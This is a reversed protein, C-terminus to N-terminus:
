DEGCVENVRAIEPLLNVYAITQSLRYGKTMQSPDSLNNVIKFWASRNVRGYDLLAVATDFGMALVEARTHLSKRSNILTNRNREFVSWSKFVPQFEDYIMANSSSSKIFLREAPKCKFILVPEVGSYIIKRTIDHYEDSTIYDSANATLTIVCTMLLIFIKMYSKRNETKAQM